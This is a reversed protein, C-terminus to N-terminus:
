EIALDDAAAVIFSKTDQGAFAPGVILENVLM